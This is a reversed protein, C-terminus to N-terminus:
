RVRPTISVVDEHRGGCAGTFRALLLAIDDDREEAATAELLETAIRDADDPHRAAIRGVTEIFDPLGDLGTARNEVIGDTYLVLLSGPPVAMEEELRSEVPSGLPPSGGEEVLRARGGPEVIIPPLHGARAVTARASEVDLLVYAVTAIEYPNLDLTIRDLGNLVAVPSPDAIALSRLSTRIQGMLSAARLGKGMVDGVVLAVRRDDIELCDYWDGGVRLGREGAVYRAAMSLGERRPLSSPLLSRQLTSAANAEDEYAQARRLAQGGQAALGVLVERDTRSWRRPTRDWVLLAGVAENGVRIPLAAAVSAGRMPTRATVPFKARVERPRDLFLPEGALLSRPGPHAAEWDLEKVEARMASDYGASGLLVLGPSGPRFVFLNAYRVGTTEVADVCLADAVEEPTVAHALDEAVGLLQNTLRLSSRLQGERRDLEAESYGEMDRLRTLVTVLGGIALVGFAAVRLSLSAWWEGSFRQQGLANLLLDYVSLSLAVAVWGRLAPAARGVRNVWLCAAAATLAALVLEAVELVSTYTTDARVLMPLPLADLALLVSIVAGALVGPLRWGRPAGFAGAAAGLALVLHFWLYLAASGADSTHFVGGRPDVVPFSILQLVMAAWAVALGGAFWGLADDQEARWRLALVVLAFAASVPASAFFVVALGRPPVVDFLLAVGYALSALATAGLAWWLDMRREPTPRRPEVEIPNRARVSVM